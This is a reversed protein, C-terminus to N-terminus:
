LEIKHSDEGFEDVDTEVAADSDPLTKAESGAAASDIKTSTANLRQSIPVPPTMEVLTWNLQLIRTQWGCNLTEDCSQDGLSRELDLNAKTVRERWKKIKNLKDIHDYMLEECINELWGFPQFTYGLNRCVDDFHSLYSKEKNKVLALSKHVEMMVIYCGECKTRKPDVKSKDLESKLSGAGLYVFPCIDLQHSCVESKLDSIKKLSVVESYEYPGLSEFPTRFDDATETLIKNCSYEIPPLYHTFFKDNCVEERSLLPIKPNLVEDRPKKQNIMDKKIKDLKGALTTAYIQVTHLCGQCFQWRSFNTPPPGLPSLKPLPTTSKKDDIGKKGEVFNTLLLLAILLNFLVPFKLAILKM